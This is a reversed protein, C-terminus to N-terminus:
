PAALLELTAEDREGDFFSDLAQAFPDADGSVEAFLTMSSKFKLADVPGLIGEASRKGAWKLLALTSERLREGLQPHTLYAEAETRDRIAYLQATHSRGLGAVQPFVFWMWHGRKAGAALEALAGDYVEGQAAVFRDLGAARDAM